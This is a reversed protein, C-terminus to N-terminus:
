PLQRALRELAAAASDLPAVGALMGYDLATAADRDHPYPPAGYVRRRLEDWLAVAEPKLDMHWRTQQEDSQAMMRSTRENWDEDGRGRFLDRDRSDRFAAEMARMRQAISHVRARLEDSSLPRFNAVAAGPVEPVHSLRQLLETVTAAANSKAFEQRAANWWTLLTVFVVLAFAAWFQVPELVPPTLAALGLAGTLAIPLLAVM